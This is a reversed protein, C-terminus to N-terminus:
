IQKKLADIFSQDQINVKAQARQQSLALAKLKAAASTQTQSQLKGQLLAKMSAALKAQLASQSSSASGLEVLTDDRPRDSDLSSNTQVYTPDELFSEAFSDNDQNLEKDTLTIKSALNRILQDTNDHVDSHFEPPIM